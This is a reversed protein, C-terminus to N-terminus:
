PSKLLTDLESFDGTESRIHKFVTEFVPRTLNGIIGNRWEKYRTDSIKEKKKTALFVQENSLDFYRYFAVKNKVFLAMPDGDFKKYFAEMPLDKTIERYEKNLSEEFTTRAQRRALHLQIIVLVVGIATVVATAWTGITNWYDM